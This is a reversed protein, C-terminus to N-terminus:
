SYKMSDPTANRYDRPSCGVMRRFCAAFYSASGYGSVKAIEAISLTPKDLLERARSLRQWELYVRPSIGLDAKFRRGMTNPSVDCHKSVASLPDACHLNKDLWATAQAVLPDRPIQPASSSRAEVRYPRLPESRTPVVHPQTMVAPPNVHDRTPSSTHILRAAEKGFLYWPFPISSLAPERRYCSKLNNGAGILAIQDPIVLGACANSAFGLEKLMSWLLFALQAM